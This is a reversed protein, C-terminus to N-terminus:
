RCLHLPLAASGPLHARKPALSARLSATRNARNLAEHPPPPQLVTLKGGELGPVGAPQGARRCQRGGHLSAAAAFEDM